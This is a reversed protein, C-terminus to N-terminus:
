RSPAQRTTRLWLSLTSQDPRMWGSRNILVSLWRNPTHPSHSHTHSHSHSHQWHWHRAVPVRHSVSAPRGSAAFVAFGSARQSARRHLGNWSPTLRNACRRRGSGKTPEDHGQQGPWAPLSRPRAHARLPRRHGTDLSFRRRRIQSPPHTARGHAFDTPRILALTLVLGPVPFWSPDDRIRALLQGNGAVAMGWQGLSQLARGPASFIRAPAPPHITIRPLFGLPRQRPPGTRRSSIFLVTDCHDGGGGGYCEVSM